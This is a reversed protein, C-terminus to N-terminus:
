GLMEGAGDLMGDLVGEEAGESVGVDRVLREDRGDLMGVTELAGDIDDAGDDAGVAKTGLVAHIDPFCPIPM